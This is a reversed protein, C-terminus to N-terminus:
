KLSDKKEEYIITDVYEINKVNKSLIYTNEINSNVKIYLKKISDKYALIQKKSKSKEIINNKEIEDVNKIIDMGVEMPTSTYTTDSSVYEMQTNKQSYSSNLNYLEMRDYVVITFIILIVATFSFYKLITKM